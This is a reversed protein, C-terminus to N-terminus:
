EIFFGYFREAAALAEKLDFRMAPNPNAMPDDGYQKSWFAAFNPTEVMRQYSFESNNDNYDNSDPVRYVKAPIYREKQDAQRSQQAKALFGFLVLGLVLVTNKKARNMDNEVLFL